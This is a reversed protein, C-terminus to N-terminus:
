VVSPLIVLLPEVVVFTSSFLSFMDTTTIISTTNAMSAHKAIIRPSIINTDFTM